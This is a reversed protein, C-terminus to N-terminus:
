ADDTAFETVDKEADATALAVDRGLTAELMAKLTEDTPDETAGLTLGVEPELVLLAGMVTEGDVPGVVTEAVEGETPGVPGLALELLVTVVESVATESTGADVWVGELAFLVADALMAGATALRVDCTEGVVETTGPTVDESTELAGCLMLGVPVSLALDSDTSDLMAAAVGVLAGLLATLVVLGEEVAVVIGVVSGRMMEGFPPIGDCGFLEM